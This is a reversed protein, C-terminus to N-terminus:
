NLTVLKHLRVVKDASKIVGECPIKWVYDTRHFGYHKELIGAQENLPQVYIIEAGLKKTLDEIAPMLTSNLRPMMKSCNEFMLQCLMPIPYKTIEQIMTYKRGKDDRGKSNYFLFVSGYPIDNYLSEIRYMMCNSESEMSNFFTLQRKLISRITGFIPYFKPMKLLKIYKEKFDNIEISDFGMAQLYERSKRLVHLFANSKEKKNRDEPKRDHFYLLHDCDKIQSSIRNSHEKVLSKINKLKQKAKKIEEDDDDGIYNYNRKNSPGLTRELKSLSLNRDRPEKDFLTQYVYEYTKEYDKRDYEFHLQAKTVVNSIETRISFEM